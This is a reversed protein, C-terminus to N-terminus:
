NQNKSSESILEQVLMIIRGPEAPPLLSFLQEGLRIREETDSLLQKITNALFIGDIIEENLNILAKNKSFYEVNEEQHGPKPIVIVAKKLAATESLSGFGGRCLVVDAAALAHKMEHTFFQHVQYQEPFLEQARTVSEQPRDKGSLHIVQAVDCIHPLMEIILQNIRASGTGGGLAFITPLNPNLHFLEQAKEKNGFFISPRVPNGLWITKKSPFLATQAQLVTTIKQAVPKMLINALGIHVDQQHIWTPIGLFWAAWHLPVSVFGGASVCLNPRHRLLFFLSQFFGILARLPDLFNWASLYRRFKGASISYFQLGSSLVLEREIGEKTGVWLGQYDTGFEQQLIDHLALLPTVPGLTGGGSYVIKIPQM